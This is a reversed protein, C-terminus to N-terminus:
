GHHAMLAQAKQAQKLLTDLPPIDVDWEILTAKAGLAALAYEYLDWTEQWVTSSHTDVLCGDIWSPGALHYEGVSEAPIKAIFAKADIGLNVSNVFLNNVDFLIGCGTKAVLEALFTAECLDSQHFAVYSSLNEILIPRGLREQVQHVRQTVHDLSAQTYPFPLLDPHVVGQVRNWCLHESVSAPQILACLNALADLHEVDLPDTSALGMGVGHLSVPYLEAVRRLTDLPAGGSFFNESHVEVWGLPPQRELVERYHAARLGIGAKPPLMSGAFFRKM